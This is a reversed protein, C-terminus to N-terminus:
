EMNLWFKFAYNLPLLYSVGQWSTDSSLQEEHRQLEDLHKGLDEFSQLVSNLGYHGAAATLYFIDSIFNPAFALYYDFPFM